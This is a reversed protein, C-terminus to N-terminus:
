GTADTRDEVLHASGEEIRYIRDAVEALRPQHSVAIITVQGRLECLSKWVSIETQPDLAATAEDLILLSPEHVLARALSIRQRQGGSLRAGREGAMTEMGDPLASVFDWAGARTLALKVQEDSIGEEGLSVNAHISRNLLFMEQPVYGISERWQRTDIKSMPLDDILVEGQDPQILGIILDVITSKGSGSSGILATIEGAPVELVTDELVLQGDYALSVHELRISKKLVPKEGVFMEEREAEANEIMGLLSWFASEETAFKQYRRQAKSLALLVRALVFGLGTVVAWSMEFRTLSVWAGLALFSVVLPEQLAGLAESALVQKQAVKNLARMDGELLPSIRGERSMAKLAKLAQLTDSVRSLLQRILRTQKVGARRTILVLQRLIFLGLLAVFFNGVTAQWSMMFALVTYLSAQILLSTVTTIHLFALSARGAESTIASAVSGMPEHIFYRWRTNMLADLLHLRLDRASRAVTYGIQRKALLSLVAKSWIAIVITILLAQISVEVGIAQYFRVAYEAFPGSASSIEEPSASGGPLYEALSFLGIISSMGVGDALAALLLCLLMVSGQVPYMKAFYFLLRM